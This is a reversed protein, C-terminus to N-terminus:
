IRKISENFNIEIYDSDIAFDNSCLVALLSVSTCRPRCCVIPLAEDGPQGEGVSLEMMLDM